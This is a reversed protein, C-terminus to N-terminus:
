FDLEDGDDGQGTDGWEDAPEEKKPEPEPQQMAAKRKEWREQTEEPLRHAIGEHCSICTKDSTEVKSHPGQAQGDQLEINMAEPAHCNKCTRSDNAEMRAWVLEALEQRHADFAEATPYTGVLNHYIDRSGSEAKAFLLAVWDDHPLHCDACGARVGSANTHHATGVYEDYIPDMEHCSVCFENTGTMQVMTATGGGLVIGGAVFVVIAAVALWLKRKM